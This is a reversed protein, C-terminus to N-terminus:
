SLATICSAIAFGVCSLEIHAVFCVSSLWKFVFSSCPLSYFVSLTSLLLYTSSPDYLLIGLSHKKDPEIGTLCRQQAAWQFQLQQLSFSIRDGDTGRTILSNLLIWRFDGFSKTASQEGGPSTAHWLPESLQDAKSHTAESEYQILIQICSVPDSGLGSSSPQLNYNMFRHKM